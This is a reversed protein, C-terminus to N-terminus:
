RGPRLIPEVIDRIKLTVPDPKMVLMGIKVGLAPDEYAALQQRYEGEGIRLVVFAKLLFLVFVVYLLTTWPVRLGGRAGFRIASVVRRRREQKDLEKLRQRFEDLNAETV